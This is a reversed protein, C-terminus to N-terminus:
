EADTHGSESSVTGVQLPLAYRDRDRYRLQGDADVLTRICLWQAGDGAALDVQDWVVEGQVMRSSPYSGGVLHAYAAQSIIAELNCPESGHGIQVATGYDDLEDSLAQWATEVRVRDDGIRSITVERVALKRDFLHLYDTAIGTPEIQPETKIQVIGPAVSSLYIRSGTCAGEWWSIPKTRFGIGFTVLRHDDALDALEQNHNVLSLGSLRGEFGQAYALRWYQDGWFAIFATPRGDPDPSLQDAMDIWKQAEDDQTLALVAPRHSLYLLVVVALLAIVTATGLAPRWRQAQAALLALGLVALAVVPLKAALLADSVRGEWIIVGLLLYPLWCLSLAWREVRSANWPLLLLGALGALLLVLPLDDALLETVRILRTWLEPMTQPLTVIRDAKIDAMKVLLSEWTIPEFQWTVGAWGQLPMYAYTLPGLLGLGIVAPLKRRIVRWHPLVLLLLGPALLAFSRQHALGQGALFALWYLARKEGTRRFRVAALFGGVTLAMTMTHVEAISADVWMSTSLGFLLGAILSALPSAELELALRALLAAAVAGWVASFLSAGAAPPIGLPRLTNVFASGLLAYLPYGSDHLTGWRPLANQIEGVDTKYPHYTGNIQLQLTFLYALLAILGALIVAWNAPLLWGPRRHLANTWVDTISRTRQKVLDLVPGLLPGGDEIRHQGYSRFAL